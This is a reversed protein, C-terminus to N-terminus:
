DEKVSVELCEEAVSANIYLTQGEKIPTKYRACAGSQKFNAVIVVGLVKKDYDKQCSAESGGPYAPRLDAQLVGERKKVEEFNDILEKSEVDDLLAPDTVYYTAVYVPYEFTAPRDLQVCLERGGGCGFCGSLSVLVGLL